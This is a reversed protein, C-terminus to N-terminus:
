LYKKYLTKNITNTLSQMREKPKLDGPDNAGVTSWHHSLVPCVNALQKEARKIAEFGANDSDFAAIVVKPSLDSLLDIQPAHLGSGFCGLVTWHNPIGSQDIAMVDGAGEVLVVVKSPKFNGFFTTSTRTNRPYMYKNTQNEHRTVVGLIRNSVDRIPYTPLGSEFHTGCRFKTATEEGFRKSWYPSPGTADFLDLWSDAFVRSPTEGSMIDLLERPTAIKQDGVVGNAHCAYCYWVGKTVNVSASANSDDHVHCCFSREEGRGKSLADELTIKM